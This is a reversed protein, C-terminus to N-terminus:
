RRKAKWIPTTSTSPSARARCLSGRGNGEGADPQGTSVTNTVTVTQTGQAITVTQNPTYTVDYGSADQETITVQTGVPLGSLTNGNTVDASNSSYTFSQTDPNWTAVISGSHNDGEVTYAYNLTFSEAEALTYGEGFQKEVTLNGVMKDYYLKVTRNNTKRSLEISEPDGALLSM